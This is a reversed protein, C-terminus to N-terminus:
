PIRSNATWHAGVNVAASAKNCYWSHSAEGTNGAVATLDATGVFDYATDVAGSNPSRLVVTPVARKRVKFSITGGAQTSNASNLLWYMGTTTVTGVATGYDYSKEWYCQCLLLESHFDPLQFAPAASGEDLWVDFLEFVNGNTGMFNFQNASGFLNGASWAGASQQFTSGCMLTWFVRLGASSDNAWTGTQDLPITVSKVVDTNAEGGSITYEAVYSRNQAGNTFGISYTGAPAKVGFQLTITKASAGGAKLDAIRRGEIVQLVASYDGAAVAADATTVTVRIRNPSGGPTLSAVQAASIAGGNSFGLTFQDVPYSGSATVATSGREQSIQMGSNVIRNKKTVGAVARMAAASAPLGMFVEKVGASSFTGKSDFANTVTIENTNSYTLIGVKFAGGPEVVGGFTTDGVSMSASFANFSTDIAGTVTFVTQSNSTSHELVRDKPPIFTM